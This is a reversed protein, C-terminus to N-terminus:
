QLFFFIKQPNKLAYIFYPFSNFYSSFILIIFIHFNLKSFLSFFPNDSGPISSPVDREFRLVLVSVLQALARWQKSVSRNSFLVRRKDAEERERWGTM